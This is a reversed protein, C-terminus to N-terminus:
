YMMRWRRPEDGSTGSFYRVYRSARIFCFFFLFYGAGRTPRSAGAGVSRLVTKATSVVGDPKRAWTAVAIRLAPVPAAMLERPGGSWRLIRTHGSFIYNWSSM